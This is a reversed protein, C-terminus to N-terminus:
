CLPLSTLPCLIPTNMCCSNPRGVHAARLRHELQKLLMAIQQGIPFQWDKHPSPIGTVEHWAERLATFEVDDPAAAPATLHLFPCVVHDWM